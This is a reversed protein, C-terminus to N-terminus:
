INNHQVASTFSIGYECSLLEDQQNNCSMYYSHVFYFRTDAPLNETLQHQKKQEVDRWGMHPVKLQCDSLNFKYTYGEIWGLGSLKGEESGKSLLQMGLCIGLIPKQREIVQENLVPILSLENMNKV